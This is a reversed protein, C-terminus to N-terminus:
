SQPAQVIGTGVDEEEVTKALSALTGSAVVQALLSGSEVRNNKELQRQAWLAAVGAVHPTAMSTGSMAILDNSGKHGASVINVGPGCIDVQDNSFSSVNGNIDVAGVSIIGMGAAPPSVAIKYDPRHSENGGAAILICGNGFLSRAKIFSALEGFLNINARYAELALSTAVEENYGEERILDKVYGPFDIGLSMSIVHAGQDVAWQIAEAVQLSSGGGIGLVKGILAREINKAIGIRVGSVDNGFITGACHTGHGHTDNDNPDSTFNKKIINKGVFAIHNPNIGTDLIAVTVGSGDFRSTGAEVAHVGWASGNKTYSANMAEQTDLIKQTDIIKMTMPPAIARTKPDRRLDNREKDTLQHTEISISELLDLGSSFPASAFVINRHNRGVNDLTPTIHSKEQLVIYENNKYM